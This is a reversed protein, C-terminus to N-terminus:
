QLGMFVTEYRSNLAPNDVVQAEFYLPMTASDIKDAPVKVLAQIPVVHGPEVMVVEDLAQLTAGDVGSVQYRVTIPQKTKNLLKLTYRNQISGDSLTVFLPQRNHTVKFETPALSAFGYIVGGLAILLILSYIIVRPRLYLPVSKGNHHLEKYSAYRILGRPQNTKDMISDCADICMGCTICGEQQGKRIDIGTPCVAVCVKCDICSGKSPDVEGRKLKGRPEGREADYAPLVTDQDYMVGQLRAYPCLWFCVQERMFGAFIYTGATFMGLVIWAAMSAQLTFYDHWLQFADTFWAAFTVGTLLAIALWLLHKVTIRLAKDATLPAQRFKMAKQPTNGELRTEIFTYLDTWVTQYCFYGCCVRGAISTVAALLIAFFLLTLSLMWIDQPYITINFLNFQRNPIDFLVAQEGNWRLYPGLFFILWVSM